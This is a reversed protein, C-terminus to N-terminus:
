RKPMPRRLSAESEEDADDQRKESPTRGKGSKRKGGM